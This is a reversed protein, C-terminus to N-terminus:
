KLLYILQQKISQINITTSSSLGSGSIFVLVGFFTILWLSTDPQSKYNICMDHAKGQSLVRALLAVKDFSAELAYLNVWM